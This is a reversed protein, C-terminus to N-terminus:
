RPRSRASRKRPKAPTAKAAAPKLYRYVTQISCGLERAIAAVDIGDNLMSQARAARTAKTQKQTARGKAAGTARRKLFMMAESNGRLDDRYRALALYFGRSYSAELALAFRMRQDDTAGDPFMYADARRAVFGALARFAARLEDGVADDTTEEIWRGLSLQELYRVNTFDQEPEPVPDFFDNLMAAELLRKQRDTSPANKKSM